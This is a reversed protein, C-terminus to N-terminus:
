PSPALARNHSARALRKTSGAGFGTALSVCWMEVSDHVYIAAADHAIAHRTHPASDIWKKPPRFLLLRASKQVTMCGCGAPTGSLLM